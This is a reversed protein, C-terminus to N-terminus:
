RLFSAVRPWPDLARRKREIQAAPLSWDVIGDAKSLRPAKTARAADQPVGVTAGPGAAALLDIAEPM